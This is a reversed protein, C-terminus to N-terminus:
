LRNLYLAAIKAYETGKFNEIIYDFNAKAKDNMKQALYLRGLDFYIKSKLLDKGQELVSELLKIAKDAQNNDEYNSALATGLFLYFYSKKSLKASWAEMLEISAKADGEESLKKTAALFSPVLTNQGVLNADIGKLANIFDAKKTKGEIYPTLISSEVAFTKNLLKAKNQTNIQDFAAFAIIGVLIVAGIIKVMKKNENILHGLDTKNLTEELVQSEQTDM